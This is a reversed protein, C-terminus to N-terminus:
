RNESILEMFNEKKGKKVTNEAIFLDFLKREKINEKLYEGANEQEYYKKIEEPSASSDAALTEFERELDEDSAELKLAEMLTEVIFRSKLAREADPRWGERIKEADQGSQVLNEELKDQPIKLRRALNRWRSNLEMLVMSEPLDISTTELVKELIRSVTIERIRAALTKELRERINNKLDELTKYKEDVDQALDDDLDPLRKEKLARLSVRITRTQGALDKHPYDGPFTKEIERTEGKKMGIIDDDFQYINYLSGLTFVFDERESGGVPVGGELECYNVTVVDDRRAPADDDRDLVIANRERLEELERNIDEEGIEVDPVEVELGKWPGVEMRPLTEYVLSFSLDQELDFVPEKELRPESYSLPQDEGPFSEDQFIDQVTKGLLKNLFEEKLAGGFKRELVERPVKGKRFGPLQVSKIYDRIHEDYAARVQDKDVTITMEVASHELRTISFRRKGAEENNVPVHKRTLAPQGASNAPGGANKVSSLVEAARIRM